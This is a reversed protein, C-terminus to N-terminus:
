RTENAVKKAQFAWFGMAIAEAADHRLSTPNSLGAQQIIEIARKKAVQKAQAGSRQERKLLLDKRWEEASTIILELSRRKAEKEWPTLLDGGGEVALYKLSPYDNCISFAAKKLVGRNSFHKSCYAILRGDMSYGALGCRLGLDVALLTVLHNNKTEM